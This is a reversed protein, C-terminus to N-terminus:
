CCCCCCCRAFLFFRELCPNQALKSIINQKLHHSLSPPRMPSTCRKPAYLALQGSNHVSIWNMRERRRDNTQSGFTSKKEFAGEREREGHERLRRCTWRRRLSQHHAAAWRACSCVYRWDVAHTGKMQSFLIVFHTM